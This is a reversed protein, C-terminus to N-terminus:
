RRKLAKLRAEIAECVHTLVQIRAWHKSEASLLVWPAAATSTHSVMDEAASEYLNRKERNRYDEPGIKHAKYPTAEREKFRRLQEEASIHLWFKLLVTDADVLQEEFANIESYARGWDARSAFGEVREVLVRGYWSRDYVTFRGPRPIHRWFRWLYHQAREEPTPASIPIVRYQRADLATIMRRIAGGKGAADWGEFVIVCSLGTARVKRSLRNLRGKLRELQHEYKDDSIDKTLDIADLITLPDPVGPDPPASRTTKAHSALHREVRELIHRGVTFARYRANAGEVVTWPAASTSTDRLARESVARFEDYRKFRKWDDDSIRWSTARDESLKKLRKKQVKKSLHFWFKIILAGDDALAQEFNRIQALDKALAEESANDMVRTIIPHTYWNNLYLGIRGHPPTRMWYRWFRPRELEDQTPVGFAHTELLRADLWENLLNATEGKGAGDVGNLLILVPFSASKLQRQIALLNERLEPVQANFDSKSLKHGLEATEFM